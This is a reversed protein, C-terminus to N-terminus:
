QHVVYYAIIISLVTTVVSIARDLNKNEILLIADDSFFKSLTVIIYLGVPILSMSFVLKLAVIMILDQTEKNM